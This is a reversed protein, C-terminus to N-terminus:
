VGARQTDRTQWLMALVFRSVLDTVGVVRQCWDCSAPEIPIENIAISVWRWSLVTICWWLRLVAVSWRLSGRVLFPWFVVLPGAYM